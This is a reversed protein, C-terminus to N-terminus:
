RTAELMSLWRQIRLIRPSPGPCFASRSGVTYMHWVAWPASCLQSLLGTEEDMLLNLSECFGDDASM